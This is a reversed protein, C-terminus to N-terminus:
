TICPKSLQYGCRALRDSPSALVNQSPLGHWPPQDLFHTTTRSMACPGKCAPLLAPHQDTHTRLQASAAHANGDSSTRLGTTHRCPPTQLGQPVAPIGGSPEVAACPATLKTHDGPLCPTALLRPPLETTNKYQGHQSSPNLANTPAMPKSELMRAAANNQPVSHRSSDKGHTTRGSPKNM